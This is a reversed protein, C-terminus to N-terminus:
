RRTLKKRTIVGEVSVHDAAFRIDFGNPFQDVLAPVALDVLLADRKGVVGDDLLREPFVVDETDLVEHVLDRGSAGVELLYTTSARKGRV